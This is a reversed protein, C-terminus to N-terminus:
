EVLESPNRVKAIKKTLFYWVALILVATSIWSATHVIDATAIGYHKGMWLVVYLRLLNLVFLVFGCAIWLKLKTKLDPKKVAFIVAALIAASALGTCQNDIQFVGSPVLIQNQAFPLNLLGAEFSALSDNLRSFDAIVILFQLLFYVLFFKALFLLLIKQKKSFFQM